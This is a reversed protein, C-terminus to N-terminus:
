KISISAGAEELKKKADEAVQKSVNELVNQPAGEVLDKAEKLGLDSRLGRVEKIVNIKKDGGATLVVTFETQEEVAAAPAAGGGAPMAMAMPAAASVGWKEELLKSLEAAELVTLKSLEDVIKTLDTM